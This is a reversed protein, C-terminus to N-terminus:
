RFQSLRRWRPSSWTSDARESHSQSFASFTTLAKMAPYPSYRRLKREILGAPSTYFSDLRDRTGRLQPRAGVRRGLGARAGRHLEDQLGGARRAARWATPRWLVM